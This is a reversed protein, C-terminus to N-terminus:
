RVLTIYGKVSGNEGKYDLYTGVFYYTGHSADLGNNQITGDWKGELTNWRYILRGHRNYIGVEMEQLGDANLQWTDNLGDGDPTFINSVVVDCMITEVIITDSDSCGFDNEVVVWYIGSDAVSIVETVEGNSWTINEFYENTSVDVIDGFCIATDAMLEVNPQPAIVVEFATPESECIAQQVALSYTGQESTQIPDFILSDATSSFGNPGTWLFTFDAPYSAFILVTDGPCGNGTRSIAPAEPVPLVEVEIPSSTTACGQDILVAYIEGFFDSGSVSSLLLDGSNNAMGLTDGFQDVFFLSGTGAPSASLLLDEGECIEEIGSATVSDPLEVVEINWPMLESVCGFSDSLALMVITDTLASISYPLQVTAFELGDFEVLQHDTSVNLTAQEGLCLTDGSLTIPAPAFHFEIGLTDTAVSCGSSDSIEAWVESELFLLIENDTSLSPHWEINEYSGAVSLLVSDGSCNITDGLQFQLNFSGSNVVSVLASDTRIGCQTHQALIYYYGTDPEPLSLYTGEVISSDPLLWSYTNNMSEITTLILSDSNCVVTNGTIAPPQSATYVYVSATDFLSYCQGNYQAGLFETFQAVTDIAIENFIGLSDGAYNFWYVPTQSNLVYSVSSGLHCVTTDSLQPSDPSDLTNVVLTDSHGICGNENEATLFYEGAVTVEIDTDQSGTSWQYAYFGVPGEVELVQGECITDNGAINLEVEPSVDFVTISVTDTMGCFTVAVEYYGAQYVDQSLVNDVLPPPWNLSSNENALVTLTVTGGECITQEPEAQIYPSNFGRVEVEDSILFCGDPNVMQCFYFGPTTAYISQTSGVVANNPGIWLYDTGSPATMLVSDNPCIVGHAPIMTITPAELPQVLFTDKKTCLAGSGIMVNSEWEFQSPGTISIESESPDTVIHQGSWWFTEGGSIGIEVTDGPCMRRPGYETVPVDSIELYFEYHLNYISTDPNCHDQLQVDIIVWSSETAVFYNGMMWTDYDWREYGSWDFHNHTYPIDPFQITWDSSCYPMSLWETAYHASDILMFYVSDEACAYITDAQLILDPNPSILIHPDLTDQNAWDDIAISIWSTDLCGEPSIHNAFYVGSTNVTTDLGPHMIVGPFTSWGVFNNATDVGSMTLHVTGSDCLFIPQAPLANTNIVVDDSILPRPPKPHIIVTVSDTYSYCGDTRSVQVWYDGSDMEEQLESTSGNSWLISYEPGIYGNTGTVSIYELDVLECSEITDQCNNICPFLFDRSCPATGARSFFDYPQRSLDVPKALLIDQHGTSEITEFSGYQPDSCYSLWTSNPTEWGMPPSWYNSSFSNGEPAHFLKAFAGAIVPQNETQIVLDWAVDDGPGGFQREWERNGDHSFKTIFVDRRGASYFVGAGYEESYEDMRCKFYGTIYANGSNDVGVARSSLQTNSGDNELWLVNGQTNMKTLFVKKSYPSTTTVLPDTFIGLQGTFDGTIYILSDQYFVVDYPVCMSASMKRMWLEGGDSDLLMVFGTNYVQNNYVNTLTLTDSFQGILAIENNSNIALGTGRDEYIAQGHKSWLVTGNPDYKVVFLDYSPENEEPDIVSNYTVGGVTISEKFSGTIVARGENDVALDNLFDHDNGGFSEIWILDGTPSLKAIFIDQTGNNSSLQVGDVEMDGSFYGAVYINGNNDLSNSYIADSGTGGFQKVWTIVGNSNARAVYGDIEGVSSFQIVDFDVGYSFFGSLIYGGQGDLTVDLAEDNGAGGAGRLWNQGLCLHSIFVLLALPLFSKM